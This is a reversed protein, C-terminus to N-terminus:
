LGAEVLLGDHALQVGSPLKQNTAAHALGHAIHTFYTRQPKVRDVVRLAQDISLHTPHEHWALADIVLVDLNYLHEYSSEPVESVDTCYAMAGVRFGLVPMRGHLLPIPTWTVGEIEFRGEIQRRILHPRFVRESPDPERFAYGFCRTLTEHTPADAWIDLPGQRIANFRRVDDLGMIHDAHGHTYVVADISEVKNALCQLRLEPTTDVLIRKGNYDIVVSPRTRHDHPDTSACVACKCGIMPVGASTGSGLFLLQLSSM